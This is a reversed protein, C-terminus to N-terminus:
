NLRAVFRVVLKGYFMMLLLLELMSMLVTCVKFGTKDLRTKFTGAM